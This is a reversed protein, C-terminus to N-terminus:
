VAAAMEVAQSGPVCEAADYANVLPLSCIPSPTATFTNCSNQDSAVCATKRRRDQVANRPTYPPCRDPLLCLVGIGDRRGIGSLCGNTRNPHINGGFLFAFHLSERWSKSPV